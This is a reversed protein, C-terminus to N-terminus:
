RLEIAEAIEERDDVLDELSATVLYKKMCRTCPTFGEKIALSAPIVRLHQKDHIVPCGPVHFTKGSDYVVVMLDPPVQGAPVALKSRVPPPPVVAMRGIALGAVLLCAAAALAVMWGLANGRKPQPMQAALRRHLRQSFGLPIELAREDGYLEIVNRTGDLVASCHKCGSLHEEMAARLGADVDGELYNSIEQWVHECNVVM